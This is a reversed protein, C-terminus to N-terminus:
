GGDDDGEQLIKLISPRIMFENRGVRVIVGVKLLFALHNGVVFSTDSQSSGPFEMKIRELIRWRDFSKGSLLLEALVDRKYRTAVENRLRRRDGGTKPRQALFKPTRLSIKELWAPSM